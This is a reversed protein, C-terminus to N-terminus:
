FKPYSAMLNIGCMGSGSNQSGRAIRVYGKDGWTTGWQNKVIWSSSDYGIVTIAHDLSTGCGSSIIGSKYLQFARGSAEVGVTVPQNVVANLLATPNRQPVSAYGSNKFVVKSKSYKCTGQKTKYYYSTEKEIGNDRTYQFTAVMTGGNCGQNGYKGSCDVLQQESYNPLVKKNIYYLSEMSSCVAFAWCAGCSGQNKMPGVAKKTRWDWTTPAEFGEQQVVHEENREEKQAQDYNFGMYLASFEETTLDAFLNMDLTWSLNKSNHEQVFDYNSNWVKFRTALESDSYQKSHKIIWQSFEALRLHLDYSTDLGDLSSKIITPIRGDSRISETNKLKPFVYSGISALLALSLVIILKNM